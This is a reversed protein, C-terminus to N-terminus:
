DGSGDDEDEGWILAYLAEALHATEEDAALQFDAVPREQGMWGCVCEPRVTAASPFLLVRTVCSM